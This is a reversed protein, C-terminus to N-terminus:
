GQRGGCWQVVGVCGYFVGVVLVRGYSTSLGKCIVRPFGPAATVAPKLVLLLLTTMTLTLIVFTVCLAFHVAMTEHAVLAGCSPFIFSRRKPTMSFSLSQETQAGGSGRLGGGEGEM